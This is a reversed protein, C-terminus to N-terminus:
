HEMSQPTVAMSQSTQAIEFVTMLDTRSILGALSGDAETVLIRGIDEQQLTRLASTAESDDSITVLDTTM